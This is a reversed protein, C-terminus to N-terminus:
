SNTAAIKNALEMLKVTQEADVPLSNRIVLANGNIEIVFSPYMSEKIANRFAITMGSIAKNTDNAAVYFNDSFVKDDNFKVETHQMLELIKDTFTEKRILARGFDHQLNVFAWAQCKFNNVRTRGATYEYHIKVFNLYCDTLPYNILYTGIVSADKENNFVEFRNIHTKSDPLGINFKAKLANYSDELAQVDDGSINVTNFPLNEL